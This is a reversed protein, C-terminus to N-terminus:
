ILPITRLVPNSYLLNAADGGVDNCIQKYIIRIVAFECSLKGLYSVRAPINSCDSIKGLYFCLNTASAAIFYKAM